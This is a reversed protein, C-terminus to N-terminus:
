RNIMALFAKYLYLMDKPGGSIEPHFQLSVAPINKYQLGQCTNDNVSAFLVDAIDTNPEAAYNHNQSTIYIQNDTLSRVPQNSGHHGHKLKFTKMGNALALILHGTGIGMIPLKGLLAKVASVTETNDAPNGPGDPLLLADPSLALIKEAETNYPVVTIECDMATLTEIIGATCGLDPMVIKYKGGANVTYNEKTSLEAAVSGIRYNKIDELNISDPDSVIAGNMTGNERLIKTLERTDIGCIGPIDHAVLFSNLDRECRFNSPEKAYERVIYAAPYTKDKQEELAFVGYNGVLPFTQCVAQGAYCPDTLIDVFGVIATNFVIEAIADRDAGFAEGAFVKGNELVLYKKM